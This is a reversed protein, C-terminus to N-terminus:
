VKKINNICKKLTSGSRAFIVCCIPPRGLSLDRAGDNEEEEGGMVATEEGEGKILGELGEGDM